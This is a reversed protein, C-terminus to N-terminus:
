SDKGYYPDYLTYIYMNRRLKTLLNAYSPALKTGMATGSVQHYLTGDFEFHNNTLVVDLLEIIYSNHPLNSPTRHIALIEKIAKIGENHPINTYLSTIYWTCLLMGPQLTLENLINILHTSDRIFSQSFPVLPGIFHDVFQSIRETPGGNGFVTPRGLPNKPNKHIKPLLYFQQTRDIDTTLYSCTSQSIQGKQLM